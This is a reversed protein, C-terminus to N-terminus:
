IFDVVLSFLFVDVLIVLLGIFVDEVVDGFGCNILIDKKELFEFDM